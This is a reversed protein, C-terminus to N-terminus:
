WPLLRWGLDEGQPVPEARERIRILESDELGGDWFYHFGVLGDLTEDSGYVNDTMTCMKTQNETMM